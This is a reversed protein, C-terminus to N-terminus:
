TTKTRLAVIPGAVTATGPSHYNIDFREIGRAAFADQEFLNIGAVTAESSFDVSFARRDGFNVARRFDGYLACIQTVATSSPFVNSRRVRSGMFQPPAGAMIIATTNGGSADLLKMMVEDWFVPSVVWQAMPMEDEQMDAYLPLKAKAKRFDALTLSTWTTGTGESVGFSDTGGGDIDLLKTRIGVIGGHDESGDGNFFVTDEKNAFGNGLRRLMSNGFEAISDDGAENSWILFAYLKKANLEIRADDTPTVDSGAALEPKFSPTPDSGEKIDVRTESTMQVVNALQRALGYREMLVVLDLTQQEPVFVGANGKETAAGLIEKPRKGIEGFREEHKPILHRWHSFASNTKAMAALVMEGFMYAREEPTHGDINEQIFNYAQVRRATAPIIRSETPQTDSGQVQKIAPQVTAGDAASAGDDGIGATKLAAIRAEEREIQKAKLNIKALVEEMDSEAKAKTADDSTEDLAVGGLSEYEENLAGLQQRLKTLM